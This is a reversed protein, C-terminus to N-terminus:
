ELKADHKIKAQENLQRLKWLTASSRRQLERYRIWGAAFYRYNRALLVLEYLHTVSHERRNEPLKRVLPLQSDVVEELIRAAQLAAQSRESLKTKKSFM